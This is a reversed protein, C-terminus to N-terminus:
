GELAGSYFVRAEVRSGPFMLAVALRYVELQTVHEPRARGTKFEVVTVRGDASRVLCDLVGRRVVGDLRASFPVEHYAVGSALLAVLDRQRALGACAEAASQVLHGMNDPDAPIEDDSLLVPL